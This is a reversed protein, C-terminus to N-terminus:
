LLVEEEDNDQRICEVLRRVVVEGRGVGWGNSNRYTPNIKSIKPTNSKFRRQASRDTYSMLTGLSRNSLM